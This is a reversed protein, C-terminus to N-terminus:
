LALGLKYMVTCMNCRDLSVYKLAYLLKASTNTDVWVSCVKTLLGLFSKHPFKTSGLNLIRCFFRFVIKLRTGGVTNRSIMDNEDM